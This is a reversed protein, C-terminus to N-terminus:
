LCNEEAQVFSCYIYPVSGPYLLGQNLSIRMIVFVILLRLCLNVEIYRIFFSTIFSSHWVTSWCPYFKHTCCKLATKNAQEQTELLRTGYSHLAQYHFTIM